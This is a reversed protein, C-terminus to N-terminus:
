GGQSNFVFPYSVIVIGGGKPSPFRMRLFRKNLCQEVIPNKMTSAKTSASSVSGNKAIVFKVVIKGFLKPNKNLEREYCFRIQALHSKVVRDILSKDLAGLIIPTGRGVGPAGGGKKGYFGSGRGYGSAGLGTGRTGLGGLGAATGGGGFGSGRSGLGGSGYQNGYQSGLLGGTVNAISADLGGSGFISNDTMQNLDALLGTSEAIQKDMQSKQIAIKSGKAKKLKHQKKGVKGEDGKAKAGEGADPNGSPKKKEKEKEIQQVSLEVFRDPITVVERKPDYDRTLLTLGFGGGLFLLLALIGLFLWDVNQAFTSPVLKPRFVKHIFFVMHGLDNVFRDDTGLELSFHKGSKSARGSSILDATSIRETGTELYGISDNTFNVTIASGTQEVIAFHDNPLNDSSVFFDQAMKRSRLEDFGFGFPLVLLIIFALNIANRAQERQEGKLAEKRLLTISHDVVKLSGPDKTQIAFEQLLGNTDEAKQRRELPAIATGHSAADGAVWVVTGDDLTEETGFADSLDIRAKVQLAVLYNNEDGEEKLTSTDKLELAREAFERAKDYQNRNALCNAYRANYEFNDRSDDFQILQALAKCASGSQRRARANNYLATQLEKYIAVRQAMQEESPDWVCVEAENDITRTKGDTGQYYIKAADMGAVLMLVDARPAAATCSGEAEFFRTALVLDEVVRREDLDDYRDYEKEFRGFEGIYDKPLKGKAAFDHAAPIMSATIFDEFDTREFLEFQPPVLIVTADRNRKIAKEFAVKMDEVWGDRFERYHDEPLLAEEAEKEAKDRDNEIENILENRIDERADESTLSSEPDERRAERVRKKINRALSRDSQMRKDAEAEIDAKEAAREAKIQEREATKIADFESQWKAIYSIHNPVGPYRTANPDVKVRKKDSIQIYNNGAADVAPKFDDALEVRLSITANDWQGQLMQGKAMFFVAGLVLVSTFIGSFVRFPRTQRDGVYVAPVKEDFHKVNMVTGSWIEAVELLKPGKRDIGMDSESTGSRLVFDMVDEANHLEAEAEEHTLVAHGVADGVNDTDEEAEEPPQILNVTITTNGLRLEDGDSLKNNNVPNGNLLTGTDSGLDLVTIEGDDGIQVAAHLDALQDDQVQLVAAAGKGITVMEQEFEQKGVFDNGVTISFALTLSTDQNAM